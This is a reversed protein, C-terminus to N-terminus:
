ENLLEEKARKVADRVREPATGGYLSRRKLSGTFELVDKVDDGISENFGRLEDLTLEPLAKGRERCHEVITATLGHAKRFSMGKEVLYDALDTATIFGGKLAAEMRERNVELTKIAEGLVLLSGKITDTSDFIPIKDEQMDKNYALPLGKMITLLAMLNGFIRGTKGRILEMLDPNRKQPMISSGTCFKPSLNIFGFEETSWLVLEECLRSMHVAIISCHALYEIAFDRDSVADISNSSIKPFGLLDALFERDLPFGSGALAGSGLPMINVRDLCQSLRERDRKFMEYYAMMHHAFLVPQARQLHTYGPMVVDLNREALDVIAKMLGSLLELIESIEERLYLRIDLAVQDNRSRGTHLKGGIDGIKEILRNEVNMHIDEFRPSLQIKGEEIERGIEELASLILEEEKITIIGTRALMRCYAKSGEIDHRYLRKDFSISASFERMLEDLKVKDEEPIM